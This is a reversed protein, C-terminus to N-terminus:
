LDIVAGRNKLSEQAASLIRMVELGSRGNTRPTCGTQVCDVFHQCELKLPESADVRPIMIDGARVSIAGAYDAYATEDVSLDRDYLRIKERGELDDIVAMRESGVVTLKRIKNPDLWSSHLHALAGDEFFVSTFCVDEIGPQLYASGQAAVGVPKGRLIALAVAIDHPALSELVNEHQRVIGLNARIAYLYYVDGLQGGAVARQVYQYAPHYLLLHGVMLHCGNTEALGVLEEAQEVTQTMPKEVFVHKNEALARRALDFHSPTDTAIVVAEVGPRALMEDFSAAHFVHPYDSATEDRIQERHDFTAIMRAGPLRSFNRLLNKGWYGVGVQALGIPDAM